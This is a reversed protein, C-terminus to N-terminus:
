LLTKKATDKHEYIYQRTQMGVTFVGLIANAGYLLVIWLRQRFYLALGLLACWLLANLAWLIVVYLKMKKEEMGHVGRGAGM